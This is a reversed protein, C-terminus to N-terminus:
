FKVNSVNDDIIWMHTSIETRACMHAGIETGACMHPSIVPCIQTSIKPGACMHASIKACM